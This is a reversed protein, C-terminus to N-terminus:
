SKSESETSMNSQYVKHFQYFALSIKFLNRAYTIFVCTFLQYLESEFNFIGFEDYECKNMNVTRPGYVIILKLHCLNSDKTNFFYLEM